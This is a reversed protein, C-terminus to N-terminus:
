NDIIYNIELYHLLLCHQILILLFDFYPCYIAYRMIDLVNDLVYHETNQHM